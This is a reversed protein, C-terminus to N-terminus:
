EFVMPCPQQELYCYKVVFYQALAGGIVFFHWIVHSNLGRDFKGPYMCEPFKSVYFVVGVLYLAGMILVRWLLPWLQTFGYLYFAPPFSTAGFFAMAVFVSARIGAYGPRAFMPHFTAIVALIGLFTIGSNYFLVLLPQCSFTYYIPSYCSGSILIAIGVYDLRAFWSYESETRSMCHFLHFFSSLFLLIQASLVFILFVVKDLLNGGELWTFLSCIMLVAFMLSGLLHTWM